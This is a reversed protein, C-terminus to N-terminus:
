SAKWIFSASAKPTSERWKRSPPRWKKTRQADYSRHHANGTDVDIWGGEPPLSRLWLIRTSACAPM